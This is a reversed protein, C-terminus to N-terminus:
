IHILSLNYSGRNNYSGGRNNYSAGRGNYSNRNNYGDINESNNYRPRYDGQQPRYQYNNRNQYNSNQRTQYGNNRQQYNNARYSNGRSRYNGNQYNQSTSYGQINTGFGEPRFEKEKTNVREAAYAHQATIRPRQSRGTTSHYERDYNMQGNPSYGERNTEKETSQNEKQELEDIM